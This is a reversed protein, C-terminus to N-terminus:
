MHTAVFEGWKKIVPKVLDDWERDKYPGSQPRIFPFIEKHM